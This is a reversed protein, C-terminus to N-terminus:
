LLSHFVPIPLCVSSAINGLENSLQLTANAVPKLLERFKGWKADKGRFDGFKKASEELARVLDEETKCSGLNDTIKTRAKLDVDTDELFQALAEEWLKSFDPTDALPM